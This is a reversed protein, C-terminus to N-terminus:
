GYVEYNLFGKQLHKINSYKVKVIKDKKGWKARTYFKLYDKKDDTYEVVNQEVFRLLDERKFCCFSNLEKIDFVIFDAEGKLWGKDGNVNDVELWICDLHRDGKVDVSMNDVYYDIHKHIDDHKSSKVVKRGRGRVIDAYLKETKKGNTNCSDRRGKTVSLM